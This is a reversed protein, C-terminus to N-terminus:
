EVVVSRGFPPDEMAGITAWVVPYEPHETPFVGMLDSIFVMVDPVVSMESLRDFVPRFDTGGGGLADTPFEDGPGLDMVRHVAADCDIVITRSPRQEELISRAETAVERQKDHLSGSTDRVIVITGLSRSWRGPVAVRRCIYNRNTRQYSWSDRNVKTLHERLVSRWDVKPKLWQDVLLQLGAPFKGAAKANANLRALTALMESESKAPQVDTEAGPSDSPHGARMPGAHGEGSPLKMQVGDRLLRYYVEEFTQTEAGEIFIGGEISWGFSEVIPNDVADAAINAIERNVNPIQDIRWPHRNAGHLWEHILVAEIKQDPWKLVAPHYFITRGDTAMTPFGNSEVSPDEVYRHYMAIEFLWPATYCVKVAHKEIKSM